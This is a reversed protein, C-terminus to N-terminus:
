ALEEHVQARPGGKIYLTGDETVWIRAPHIREKTGDKGEIWYACGYLMRDDALLEETTQPMESM